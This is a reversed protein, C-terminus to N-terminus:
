RWVGVSDVNVTPATLPDDPVRAGRVTSHRQDVNVVLVRYRRSLAAGLQVMFATKGFGRRQNLIAIIHLTTDPSSPARDISM